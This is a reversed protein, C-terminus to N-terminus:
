LAPDEKVSRAVAKNLHEDPRHQERKWGERGDESQDMRTRMRTRCEDNHPMTRGTAIGMCGPCGETAGYARIHAKLVNEVISDPAAVSAARGEQVPIHEDKGPERRRM